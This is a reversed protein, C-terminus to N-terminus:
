VERSILLWESDDWNKTLPDTVAIWLTGDYRDWVVRDFAEDDDVLVEYDGAIVTGADPDVEPEAPWVAAVKDLRRQLREVLDNHDETNTELIAAMLDALGDDLADAVESLKVDAMDVTVEHPRNWAGCGHQHNRSGPPCSYGGDHWTAVDDALGISQGCGHCWPVAHRALEVVGCRWCYDVAVLDRHDDAWRNVAEAIPDIDNDTMM